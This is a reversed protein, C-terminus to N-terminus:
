EGALLLNIQFSSLATKKEHMRQVDGTRNYYATCELIPPTSFFSSLLRPCYFYLLLLPQTSPPSQSLPLLIFIFLCKLSRPEDYVFVDPDIMGEKEEEEKEM